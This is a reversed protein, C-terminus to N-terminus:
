LRKALSIGVVAAAAALVGVVVASLRFDLLLLGAGASGITQGVSVGASQLGLQAGARSPAARALWFALIPALLGGSAAIAATAALLGTEAASIPILALGTGLVLFSPGIFWRTSSPRVWRSFIVVQVILMIVMCGAFMLGLTPPSILLVRSRLTLAVEFVGLGAAAIAALVILPFRFIKGLSPAAEVIAGATSLTPPVTVAVAVAAVLALLAVLAFPVLGYPLEVLDSWPRWDAAVGGLVPGALLGLTSAVSVWGFARARSAEDAEMGSVLALVSPIIAAAFGGNLLRALYLLPISPPFITGAFTIAFGILGIILIPRRGFRDSLRGWPYATVLPAAAFAATLLSIHRAEDVADPAEALQALITHLLPLITGYGLAVAFAAFV